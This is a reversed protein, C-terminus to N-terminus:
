FILRIGLLAGWTNGTNPSKSLQTATKFDAVTNANLRFTPAASATPLGVRTLPRVNDFSALPNFHYAGWSDDIMNGINLIDLSLQLTYKKDTGFNSFIDQIVKVDFRHIWPRIHGFREAYQGKRSSLYENNNVYEWFAAAQDAATMVVGGTPTFNVFTIEDQTKPIYMLDSSNGDNNLDNSYTYSWRGQQFGRYAVSITTALANLYEIRYSLHGVLQHPTSFGSYSLEPKNLSYVSTNSSYASFASSGPNSTIDMSKSYTYAFMGSLGKSFNKTLQATISYQYGQDTNTLIMANGVSQVFKRATTTTWFPRNDPGIMTGDANPENVNIQQVANIDKGFLAEATFIMNFPLEIDVALNSRWVQPMKFDKAVEVLGSNNPLTSPSQPFLDPRSAIFQKFDPRFTLGTLNAAGGQTGWGIEPSQIVASNTPQNTFWVFPLLGTFIGTGGRVQFSRDGKVDWNFGFRPSFLFKQEPWTSVDMKYGNFDFASIAPNGKLEDFFFTREVRLGFTTKIKPDIKWEDQLYLAGLGFTLEAGPADEGGYGYTVGFGSPTANNIFADVSNYRYYTTGERIFSNRFFLRDFSAGVTFTHNNINIMTNNTISLTKNTVDNNYSFLEYGFSMYQDGGVWIDVFPFLDSKSTRTDQIFTYSALFKNSINKPKFTSNLEGTFSRVTNKFGYFANSFAMSQNGIRGSNRPNNPPGSTANTTQDSTGVVDNYRFTLKHNDNINWDVRALIKINKNQFPDFDKYKGPDYGYTNILHNRVRIMDSELTRSILLTPNSVGDASPKWNVGPVDEIEFEGNVFFFLKDKVIPGGLSFGYNVSSRDNAGPVDVGDVKNGTFSNPRLYTYVSGKYSNTGSRTVANISAGTFQSLRVDFPAINVTVQDIADLAIPQANGGPLPNSSLGFNNNFAAGDITITNFRGDRGAFSNGQAQPTLRSLDTISRNISPINSIDRSSINTQAGTRNSNLIPNGLGASVVVTELETASEKMSGNLVFTEGLKLDIDQYKVSTFGVLSFTVSYPGGVRLGSLSFAGNELTTTGYKTGSPEHVVIVSAFPVPEGKDDLIQGSLGSTTSGQGIINVASLIMVAIFMFSLIRKKM